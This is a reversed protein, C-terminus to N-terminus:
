RREKVPFPNFKIPFYQFCVFLCVFSQVTTAYVLKKPNPNICPGWIILNLLFLAILFEWIPFMLKTRACFKGFLYCKKGWLVCVYHTCRLPYSINPKRLNQRRILFIIREHCKWWQITGFSPVHRRMNGARGFVM